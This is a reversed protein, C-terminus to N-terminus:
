EDDEANSECEDCQNCNECIYAGCECKDLCQECYSDDGCNNCSGGDCWSCFYKHCKECPDCESRM